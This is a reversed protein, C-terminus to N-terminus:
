KKGITRIAKAIEHHECVNSSCFNDAIWAAEEYAKDREQKLALAIEDAISAWYEFSYDEEIPPFLKLIECAKKKDLDGPESM